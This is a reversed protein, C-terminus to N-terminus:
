PSLASGTCLSVGVAPADFLTAEDGWVRWGERSQRGFLDLYPGPAFAEVRRYFEDPKRSHERLPAIIVERVSHSLIQPSGRRGLWVTESNKRTTKGGNMCLVSEIDTTSVLRTERNLSKLTKVWTFGRGSFKFGFAQMIELMRPAHPDPLWLWLWADRAVIDKVPLGVIIEDISYDRYHRSPARGQGKASWTGYHLPADVAVNPWGGDVVPLPAFLTV